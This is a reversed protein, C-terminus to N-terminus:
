TQAFGETVWTDMKRWVERIEEDGAEWKRLIERAYEELSPDEAAKRAFLVYYDGVFHDGKKKETEPTKGSGFKLWAAMSRCIHIGRDNLLNVRIVEFGAFEALNAVASALLGNRLHGLHLPKNTNPSLYEILLKEGRAPRPRIPRCAGGFLTQSALRVNLYPGVARFRGWNEARSLEVALDAAM